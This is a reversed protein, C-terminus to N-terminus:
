ALAGMAEDIRRRTEPAAETLPARVSPSCLGLASLAYKPGAPNPEVTLAVTLPHLQDNLRRAEVLDGSAVASVLSACERPAVNAVVSVWGQGGAALYALASIDDGSLYHFPTEMAWREAALRSLDGTSDKIGIIKEHAGIALIENVSLSVSTRQPIDYLIVPREAADAVAHFHAVLQQSTPRNYYGGVHLTADAGVQEAALTLEIATATSNSGAGAIIPVRGKSARVASAIIDIQEREDLTPSEGTTGCVVLATSGEAIHWEILADLDDRSWSDKVFPTILAPVSGSLALSNM